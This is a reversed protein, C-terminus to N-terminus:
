APEPAPGVPNFHNQVTLAMNSTGRHGHEEAHFHGYSSVSIYSDSCEPLAEIANSISAKVPEPLHRGHAVAQKELEAQAAPKDAATFSLNWSM